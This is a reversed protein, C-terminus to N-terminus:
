LPCFSVGSGPLPWTFVAASTPAIRGCPWSRGLRRPRASAPPVRGQLRPPLAARGRRSALGWGRPGHPCFHGHHSGRAHAEHPLGLCAPRAAPQPRPTVAKEGCRACRPLRRDQGGRGRARGRPDTGLGKGPRRPFLHAEPPHRRRNRHAPFPGPPPGHPAAAAHGEPPDAPATSAASAGPWNLRRGCGGPAPGQRPPRMGHTHGPCLCTRGRM